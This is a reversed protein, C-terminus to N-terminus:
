KTTSPTNVVALQVKAHALNLVSQSFHLCKQPDVQAKIHETVKLIANDIQENVNQTAMKMREPKIASRFLM